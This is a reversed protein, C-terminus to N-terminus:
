RVVEVRLGRKLTAGVKGFDPETGFTLCFFELTRLYVPVWWAIRVQLTISGKHM